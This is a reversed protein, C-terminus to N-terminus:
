VKPNKEPMGTEMIKLLAKNGSAIKNIILSAILSQRELSLNDDIWKRDMHPYSNQLFVELIRNQYDLDTGEKIKDDLAIFSIASPIFTSVEYGEGDKEGKFKISESQPLLVDLDIINAM